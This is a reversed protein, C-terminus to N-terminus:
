PRDQRSAAAWAMIIATQERFSMCTALDLVSTASAALTEAYAVKSLCREASAAIPGCNSLYCAM